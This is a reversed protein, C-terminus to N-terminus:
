LNAWAYTVVARAQLPNNRYAREIIKIAEDGIGHDMLSNAYNDLMWLHNPEMALADRYQLEGSILNNSIGEYPPVWIKYAAGLTPCRNLAKRSLDFALRMAGRERQLLSTIALASYARAYEPDFSIAKKLLQEAQELKEPGKQNIYIRAQHYAELAEINDTPECYEATRTRTGLLESLRQSVRRQLGKQSDIDGGFRFEDKWLIKQQDTQLLISM